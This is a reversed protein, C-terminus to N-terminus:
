VSDSTPRCIEMRPIAKDGIIEAEKVKALSLVGARCASESSVIVKMISGVVFSYKHSLIRM